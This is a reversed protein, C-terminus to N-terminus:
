VSRQRYKQLIYKTGSLRKHRHPFLISEPRYERLIREIDSRLIKPVLFNRKPYIFDTALDSSIQKQPIETAPYRKQLIELILPQSLSSLLSFFQVPWGVAESILFGAAQEYFLSRDFLDPHYGWQGQYQVLRTHEITNGMVIGKLGRIDVTPAVLMATWIKMWKKGCQNRIYNWNDRITVSPISQDTQGRIHRRFLIPAHGLECMLCYQLASEIDRLSLAGYRETPSKGIAREYTPFDMVLDYDHISEELYTAESISRDKLIARLIQKGEETFSVDGQITVAEPSNGIFLYSLALAQMDMIRKLQAGYFKEVDFPYHIWFRYDEGDVLYNYHMRNKKISTSIEITKM